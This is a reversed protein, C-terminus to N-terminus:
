HVLGTRGSVKLSVLCPCGILSKTRRTVYETAVTFSDEVDIGAFTYPPYECICEEDNHIGVVRAEFSSEDSTWIMVYEGPVFEPGDDKEDNLQM